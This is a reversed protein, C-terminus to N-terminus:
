WIDIAETFETDGTVMIVLRSPVFSNGKYEPEATFSLNDGADLLDEIRKDVRTKFEHVFAPVYLTNVPKDDGGFELPMLYIKSLEGKEYLAIAKERSDVASYDLPNETEQSFSKSAVLLIAFCLIVNKM